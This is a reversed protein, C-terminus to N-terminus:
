EEAEPEAEEVVEGGEEGARAQVQLVQEDQRIVPALVVALAGQVPQRLDGDVPAVPPEFPDAQVPVLVGDIEVLPVAGLLLLFPADEADGAVLELLDAAPVLFLCVIM